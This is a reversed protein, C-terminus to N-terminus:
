LPCNPQGSECGWGWDCTVPCTYNWTNPPYGPCNNTCGQQCTATPCAIEGSYNCYATHCGYSGLCGGDQCTYNLCSFATHAKVTGRQDPDVATTEFSEVSVDELNLRLKRM